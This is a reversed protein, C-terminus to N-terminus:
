NKEEVKKNLLDQFYNYLEDVLGDFDTPAKFLDDATRIRVNGDIEDNKYYLNKIETIFEKIVKMRDLEFTGTVEGSQDFQYVKPFLKEKMSLSPAKHEVRVQDAVPAKDNGNFKPVYERKTSVSIVM